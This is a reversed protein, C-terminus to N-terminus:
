GGVREGCSAGDDMRGEAGNDECGDAGATEGETGKDKGGGGDNGKANAVFGPCGSPDGHVAARGM